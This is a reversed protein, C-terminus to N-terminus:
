HKRAVIVYAGCTLEDRSYDALEAEIEPTLLHEGERMACYHKLIEFHKSFAELYQHIRWENLPVTIPLRRKRLHDWADVGKPVKRLPIEMLKLNHGGSPCTFLHIRAYVLGGPKLVRWLDAVVSPVDLFHEFAAISTALDFYNNPYPLSSVDGCVLTETSANNHSYSHMHFIFVRRAIAYLVDISNRSRRNIVDIGYVSDGQEKLILYQPMLQGNALDLVKLGENQIYPSIDRKRELAVRYERDTRFGGLLEWIWLFHDRIKLTVAMVIREDKILLM